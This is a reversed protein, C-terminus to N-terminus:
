LGYGERKGGKFSGWYHGNNYKKFGFALPMQPSKVILDRETREVSYDQIRQNDKLYQILNNQNAEPDTYEIGANRLDSIFRDYVGNINNFQHNLHFLSENLEMELKEFFIHDSNIKAM